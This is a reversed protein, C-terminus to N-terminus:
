AKVRWTVPSRSLSEFRFDMKFGRKPQALFNALGSNISKELWSLDYEEYYSAPALVKLHIGPAGLM